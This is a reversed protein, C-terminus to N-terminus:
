KQGLCLLFQLLASSTLMYIDQEPGNRYASGAHIFSIDLEHCAAPVPQFTCDPKHSFM